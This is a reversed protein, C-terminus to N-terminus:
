IIVDKLLEPTNHYLLHKKTSVLFLEEIGHNFYARWNFGASICDLMVEGIAEHGQCQQM